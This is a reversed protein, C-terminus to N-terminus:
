RTTRTKSAGLQSAIADLVVRYAESGLPTLKLSRGEQKNGIPVVQYRLLGRGALEQATREEDSSPVYRWEFDGEGIRLLMKIAAPSLGGIARILRPNGTAQATQNIELALSGITIKSSQSIVQPLLGVSESIPGRFLLYFLLILVPWRFAIVLSVVGEFYQLHKSKPEAEEERM